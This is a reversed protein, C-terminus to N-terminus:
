EKNIKDILIEGTSVLKRYNRNSDDIIRQGAHALTGPHKDEVDFAISSLDPKYLVRELWLNEWFINFYTALVVLVGAAIIGIVHAIELGTDGGDKIRNYFLMYGLVLSFVITSHIMYMRKTSINWARPDAYDKQRIIFEANKHHRLYEDREDWEILDPNTTDSFKSQQVPEPDKYTKLREEIQDLTNETKSM